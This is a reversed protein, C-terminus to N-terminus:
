ESTLTYNLWFPCKLNILILSLHLLVFLDKISFLAYFTSFEFYFNTTTKWYLYNNKCIIHISKSSLSLFCFKSYKWKLSKESSLKHHSKSVKLPSISTLSFYNISNLTVSKQLSCIFSYNYAANWSNNRLSQVEKYRRTWWDSVPRTMKMEDSRNIM